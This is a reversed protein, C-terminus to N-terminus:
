GSNDVADEPLKAPDLVDVVLSENTGEVPISDATPNEPDPALKVERAAPCNLPVIGVPTNPVELKFMPVVFMGKFAADPVIVDSVPTLTDPLAPLTAADLIVPAVRAEPIVPELKVDNPVNVSKDTFEVPLIDKVAVPPKATVPLVDEVFPYLSPRTARPVIDVGVLRSKLKPLIKVIVNPALVVSVNVM